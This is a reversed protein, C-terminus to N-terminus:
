VDSGCYKGASIKKREERCYFLKRTLFTNGGNAPLNGHSWEKLESTTRRVVSQGDRWAMKMSTNRCQGGEESKAHRRRTMPSKRRGEDNEM